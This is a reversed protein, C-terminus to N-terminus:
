LHFNTSLSSYPCCAPVEPFLYLPFVFSTVAPCYSPSPNRGIRVAEHFLIQSPEWLGPAPTVEAWKPLKLHGWTKNKATKTCFVFFGKPAPSTELTFCDYVPVFTGSGGRFLRGILERVRPKELSESTGGCFRMM